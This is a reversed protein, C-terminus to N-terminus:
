PANPDEEGLAITAHESVTLGPQVPPPADYRGLILKRQIWIRSEICFRTIPVLEGNRFGLATDLMWGRERDNHLMVTAKEQGRWHYFYALGDIVERAYDAVCHRMRRGEQRLEVNCCIPHLLDDGPIPPPPFPHDDFARSRWRECWVQFDYWDEVTKLSEVARDLGTRPMKHLADYIEDFMEPLSQFARGIDFLNQLRLERPLRMLLRPASPDIEGTHRLIKALSPHTMARALERYREAELPWIGTRYLVQVGSKTWPLGSLDTLLEHRRRTLIACALDRRRNRPLNSADALALCAFVYNLRCGAAEATLFPLLQPIQWMLDLAVWQHPGFPRSAALTESPIESFYETFATQAARRALRTPWHPRRPLMPLHTRSEAYVITGRRTVRGEAVVERVSDTILDKEWCGFLKGWRGFLYRRDPWEEILGDRIFRYRPQMQPVFNTGPFPIPFPLTPQTM